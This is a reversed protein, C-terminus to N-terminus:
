QMLAASIDPEVGNAVLDPIFETSVGAYIYEAAVDFGGFEHTRGLIDVVAERYLEPTSHLPEAFQGVGSGVQLLIMWALWSDGASSHFRDHLSSIDLASGVLERNAGRGDNTHNRGHILFSAPFDHEIDGALDELNMLMRPARQAAYIVAPLPVNAFPAYQTPFLAAELVHSSLVSWDIRLSPPIGFTVPDNQKGAIWEDVETIASWEGYRIAIDVYMKAGLADREFRYSPNRPVHTNKYSKSQRFTTLEENSFDHDGSALYADVESVSPLM